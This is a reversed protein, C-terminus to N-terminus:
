DNHLSYSYQAVGMTIPVILIQLIELLAVFHPMGAVYATGLYGVTQGSEAGQTGNHAVAVTTVQATHERLYQSPVALTGVDQHCMDATIWSSVVTADYSLEILSRRFEKDATVAMYELHLVVLMESEQVDIGAGCSKLTPM